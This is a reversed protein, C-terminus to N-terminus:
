DFAPLRQTSRLFDAWPDQRRKAIWRAATRVTFEKPDLAKLDKWAVPMAVTAGPRARPSYPLVATAGQGNRLYDVFIKGARKAKAMNAVYRKPNQAELSRAIAQTFGKVQDWDQEPKIPVVVHLGKGGTTKVWSQLKLSKL